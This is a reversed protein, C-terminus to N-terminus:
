KILNASAFNYTVGLFWSTRSKLYTTSNVNGDGSYFKPLDNRNDYIFNGKNDKQKLFSKDLDSSLTKEKGFTLGGVFAIRSKGVSFMLSGGLLFQIQSENIIPGTAIGFNVPTGSRSYLHIIFGTNFTFKKNERIVKGTTDAIGGTYQTILQGSPNITDRSEKYRFSEQSILFDSNTIGSIFVGASFDIKLGLSTRYSKPMLLERGGNSKVSFSIEDTNTGPVQIQKTFTVFREKPNILKEYEIEIGKILEIFDAYYEKSSVIATMNSLIKGFDKSNDPVIKGLTENVYLKFCLVFAERQNELLGQSIRQTNFKLLAGEIAKLRNKYWYATPYKEIRFLLKQVLFKLSDIAINRAILTDLIGKSSLVIRLKDVYDDMLLELPVKVFDKQKLIFQAFRDSFSPSYYTRFIKLKVNLSTDNDYTAVLLSDAKPDRPNNLFETWQPMDKVSIITSDKKATDIKATDVKTGAGSINQFQEAFKKEYEMFYQVTSSEITYSSDKKGIVTIAVESGVLPSIRKKVKYREYGKERKYKLYTIPNEVGHL